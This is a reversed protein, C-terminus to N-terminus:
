QDQWNVGNEMELHPVYIKTRLLLNNQTFASNTDANSFVTVSKLLLTTWAYHDSLEDTILSIM